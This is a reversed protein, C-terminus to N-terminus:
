GIIRDYAKLAFNSGSFGSILDRVMKHEVWNLKLLIFYCSVIYFPFLILFLWRSEFASISVGFLFLLPTGVILVRMIAYFPIIESLKVKIIKFGYYYVMLLLFVTGSSAAIVAGQIGWLQIFIFNSIVMFLCAISYLLPLRSAKNAVIFLDEANCFRLFLSLNYIQFIFASLAYKDSFLLHILDGAFYIFYFLVPYIMFVYMSAIKKKVDFLQNIRNEHYMLSVDPMVISNIAAYLNMIMPIFIAGNRYIAYDDVELMSSVFFGDAMSYVASIMVTIGLPLAETIQRKVSHVSIMAPDFRWSMRKILVFFQVFALLTLFSFVFDLNNGWFKIILLIGCLRILNTIVSVSVLLRSNGIFILGANISSIAITVPIYPAYFRLNSEISPNNFHVSIFPALLLVTVMGLSGVFLSSILNNYFVGDKNEAKSLDKLLLNNFGMSLLTISFGAVLLVQGYSGYTAIDFTRALVPLLLFNLVLNIGDGLALALVKLPRSM